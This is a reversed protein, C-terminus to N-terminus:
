LKFNLTEPKPNRTGPELNELELNWTGPKENRLIENMCERMTANM